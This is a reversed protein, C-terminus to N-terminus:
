MQISFHGKSRGLLGWAMALPLLVFLCAPSSLRATLVAGLLGGLLFSVITTTFFFAKKRAAEDGAALWETWGAVAQRLNNTSFVTACSYGEAGSFTGWQFAAAFFIPYLGVLPNAEPPIAAAVGIGLGEVGLAVYGMPLSTHNTLLTSIVMAAMFLGMAGLRQLFDTWNWESLDIMMELLNGTQANGFNGGRLLLAYSGLFGGALAMLWHITRGRHLSHTHKTQTM